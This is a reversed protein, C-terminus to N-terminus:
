FSNIGLQCTPDVHTKNTAGKELLGWQRQVSCVPGSPTALLACKFLLFIIVLLEVAPMLALQGSRVPSAAAFM